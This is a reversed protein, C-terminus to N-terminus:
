ATKQRNPDQISTCYREVGEALAKFKAGILSTGMGTSNEKKGKRSKFPLICNAKFTQLEDNYQPPTVEFSVM